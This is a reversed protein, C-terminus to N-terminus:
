GIKTIMVNTYFQRHNVRKKYRTKNKYKVTQVKKGKIQSVVEGTVKTALEPTGVEVKSGDDEAVLLVKDFTVAAGKEGDIKEIKLTDGEKAIYQKGGTAIVAFM